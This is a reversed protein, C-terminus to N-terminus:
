LPTSQSKGKYCVPWQCLRPCGDHSTIVYKGHHLPSLLLLLTERTLFDFALLWFSLDPPGSPAPLYRRLLRYLPGPACLCYVELDFSVALYLRALWPCVSWSPELPQSRHSSFPSGLSSHSAATPNPSVSAWPGTGCVAPGMLSQVPLCLVSPILPGLGKTCAAPGGM